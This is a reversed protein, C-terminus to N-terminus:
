YFGSNDHKWAISSFKCWRITEPYDEGSAVRRIKIEQWDSGSSSVGYALLSGDFSYAQTVLAVTGDVSLLNPDLLLSPQGELSEQQYLIAQNQLGTNYSFFYHGAKQTPVSYRPFDLLEKLRESMRPRDEVAHVYASSAENQAEVWARTEESEADELWRYPDAVSTGHYSEVVDDRRTEIRKM